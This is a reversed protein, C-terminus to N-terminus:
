AEEPSEDLITGSDMLADALEEVASSPIVVHLRRLEDELLEILKERVTKM